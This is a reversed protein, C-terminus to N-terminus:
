NSHTTAILRFRQDRDAPARVKWTGVLNPTQAEAELPAGMAIVALTFGLSSKVSGRM